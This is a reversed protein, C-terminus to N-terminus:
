RSRGRSVSQGGNGRASDTPAYGGKPKFRPPGGRSVPGPQETEPGFIAGEDLKRSKANITPSVLKPNAESYAGLGRKWGFEDNHKQITMQWEM